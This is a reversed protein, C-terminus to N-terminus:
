AGRQRSAHIVLVPSALETVQAAAETGLKHESRASVNSQFPLWSPPNHLSRSSGM